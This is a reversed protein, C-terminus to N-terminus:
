LFRIGKKLSQAMEVEACVGKSKKWDGFNCVWLEDCWEIMPFDQQKWFRWPKRQEGQISHSHSIPSFVVHGWMMLDLATENAFAFSEEETGSYPIALYIKL